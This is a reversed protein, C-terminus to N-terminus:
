FYILFGIGFIAIDAFVHMIWSNWISRKRSNLWCFLMGGVFLSILALLLIWWSFWGIFITLHYLSFLASSIVWPRYRIAQVVIGRFFVEELMSNGLIAYIAVFVYTEKTIRQREELVSRIHELDIFGQLGWYALLIIGLSAAGMVVAINTKKKDPSGFFNTGVWFMPILFLLIKLGIKYVYAVPLVLEVFFLLCVAVIFYSLTLM